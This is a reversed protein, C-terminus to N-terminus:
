VALDRFSDPGGLRQPKRVKCGLGEIGWIGSVAFGFGM